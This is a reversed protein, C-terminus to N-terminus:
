KEKVVLLGIHRRRFIYKGILNMCAYIELSITVVVGALSVLGKYRKPYKKSM